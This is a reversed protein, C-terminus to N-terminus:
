RTSTPALVAVVVVGGISAVFLLLFLWIGIKKAIEIARRQRRTKLKM